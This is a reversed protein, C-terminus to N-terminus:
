QGGGEGHLRIHVWNHRKLFRKVWDMSHTSFSLRLKNKTEEDAVNSLIIDAYLKKAKAAIASRTLRIKTQEAMADVRRM